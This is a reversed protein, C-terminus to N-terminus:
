IVSDGPALGVAEYLDNSFIISSWEPGEPM